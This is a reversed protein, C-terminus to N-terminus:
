LANVECMSTLLEHPKELIYGSHVTVEVTSVLAALNMKVKRVTLIVTVCDTRIWDIKVHVTVRM